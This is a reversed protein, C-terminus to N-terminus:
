CLVSYFLHYPCGKKIESILPFANLIESKLLIEVISKQPNKEVHSFNLIM